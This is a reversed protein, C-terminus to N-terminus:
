GCKLRLEQAEQLMCLAKTLCALAVDLVGKFQIKNSRAKCIVSLCRFINDNNSRFGTGVMIYAFKMVNSPEPGEARVYLHEQDIM